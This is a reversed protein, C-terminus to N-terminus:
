IKNSNKKCEQIKNSMKTIMASIKEYADCNYKISIEKEDLIEGGDFGYYLFLIELEENDFESLCDSIVRKNSTQLFSYLHEQRLNVIEKINQENKVEIAKKILEQLILEIKREVEYPSIKLSQAIEEKSLPNSGFGFYLELVLKKKAELSAYAEFVFQKEYKICIENWIDRILMMKSQKIDPEISM